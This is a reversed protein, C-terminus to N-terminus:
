REPVTVLWGVGAGGIPHSLRGTRHRSGLRFVEIKPKISNPTVTPPNTFTVDLYQAQPDIAQSYFSVHLPQAFQLIRQNTKLDTVRFAFALLVKQGKPVWEQWAKPDGSLLEFRVPDRGFAGSPVTLVLSGMGIRLYEWPQVIFSAKEESFAFKTPDPAQAMALGVVLGVMWLVTRM